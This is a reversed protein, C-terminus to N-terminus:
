HKLTFWRTFFLPLPESKEKHRKIFDPLEKKEESSKARSNEVEEDSDKLM